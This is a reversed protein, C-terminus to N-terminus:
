ARTRHEAARRLPDLCRNPASRISPRQQRVIPSCDLFNAIQLAIENLRPTKVCCLSAGLAIAQSLDSQIDSGTLAIVRVGVEHTKIWQLVQFGSIWPMRLDLILVDPLPFCSRDSYKGDGNLYYITEIGDRLEGVLDLSPVEELAHALLFRDDASDDVLLIKCQPMVNRNVM